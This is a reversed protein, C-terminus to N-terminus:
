RLNQASKFGVL